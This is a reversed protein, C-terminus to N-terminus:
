CGVAKKKAGTLKINKKQLYERTEEVIDNEWILNKRKDKLGTCQCITSEDIAEPCSSFINWYAWWEEKPLEKWNKRKAKFLYRDNM